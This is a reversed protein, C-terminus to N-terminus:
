PVWWTYSILELKCPQALMRYFMTYFKVSLCTSVKASVFLLPVTFIYSFYIYSNIYVYYFRNYYFM